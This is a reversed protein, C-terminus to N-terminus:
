PRAKQEDNRRLGAGNVRALIAGARCFDNFYDKATAASAPNPNIAV